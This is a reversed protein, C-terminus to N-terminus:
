EGDEDPGYLAPDGINIALRKAMAKAMLAKAADNLPISKSTYSQTPPNQGAGDPTAQGGPTPPLKGGMGWGKRAKEIAEAVRANVPWTYRCRSLVGQERRQSIKIGIKECVARRTRKITDRDLGTRNRLEKAGIEESYKGWGITKRWIVFALKVEAPKLFPADNDIFDNVMVVATFYDVEKSGRRKIPTM